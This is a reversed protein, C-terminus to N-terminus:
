AKGYRWQLTSCQCQVLGANADECKHVPKKCQSCEFFQLAAECKNILKEAENPVVDFTHSAKNGWSMLLKDVERFAEVAETHPKLQEGDKKMFCKPGDSILRSLFDHAMRHDNKELRLYPLRLKLKQARISLDIDMIKRAINGAVEPAAKLQARADGFASHKASWCIGIEPSVYPVLAKFEWKAPDLQQRLEAYWERDHTFILIQRNDFEKELLEVLMGRHNRDLSVIVDDLFIPRDTAKERQAMALFICLGLSNRYSESLTLRPSDQKVGYFRLRVDIAKDVDDPLYLQVDEIPEGPHVIAWMQQVSKSIEDVVRQSRGRIEARTANELETVLKLVTSSRTVSRDLEPVDQLARGLQATKRDSLLDVVDPPAKASASEARTIIPQLKTEFARLDDEGCSSRLTEAILGDVYSFNEKLDQQPLADRWARVDSKRM